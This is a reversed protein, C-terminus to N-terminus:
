YFLEEIIKHGIIEAEFERGCLYDLYETTERFYIKYAHLFQNKLNYKKEFLKNVSYDGYKKDGIIPYGLKKLGARIQHSKGTILKVQLLTYERNTKLPKYETLIYKSGEEFKDYIIAKNENEDKLHYGELKGHKKIIGKVITLYYKDVKNDRILENLAQVSHLNKGFLVIGSTNRDLRNCISPTFSNEAKLDYEGKSSIYYLLQDNLSNERNNSDQQSILGSPKNCMIINEDEYIIKFDINTKKIEKKEIFSDITEDSLYLSLIDGSNLIENGAARKNNYKIRKKRLMKYLFAKSSKNMYKLLFKDLRQQSEKETIVIHRM